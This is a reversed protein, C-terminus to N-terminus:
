KKSNRLDDGVFKLIEIGSENLRSRIRDTFTEKIFNDRINGVFVIYGNNQYVCDVILELIDKHINTINHCEDIVLIKANKIPELKNDFRFDKINLGLLEYGQIYYTREKKCMNKIIEKAFTTKGVGIDGFIVLNKNINLYKKYKKFNETEKPTFNISNESIGSSYLREIEWIDELIEQMTGKIKKTAEIRKKFNYEEEEKCKPCIPTFVYGLIERKIGYFIRHKNCFLRNDQPRDFNERM